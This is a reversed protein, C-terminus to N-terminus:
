GTRRSVDSDFLRAAEKSRESSPHAYVGLTMRGDPNHGVREAVTVIDFGHEILRSIHYHRLSHFHIHRYGLRNRVSSFAQTIFDPRMPQDDGPVQPFVWGDTIRKGNGLAGKAQITRHKKLLAVTEPGIDVHRDTGNKPAKVGVSGDIDVSLAHQVCISNANFDIDSWRLGLVEGRRMGTAVALSVMVGFEYRHEFSADIIAAVEEPLIPKVKKRVSKPVRSKKSPDVMIYDWRIAQNLALRLVGIDRLVTAASLGQKREEAIFRDVDRTALKTLPIDGLHRKLKKVTYSTGLRTNPSWEPSAHDWWEDLYAGVSLSHAGRAEYGFAATSQRLWMEADRKTPFTRSVQRWQGTTVDRQKYYAQWKDRHKRVSGQMLRVTSPPLYIGARNTTCVM